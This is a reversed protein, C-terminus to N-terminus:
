MYMVAMMMMIVIVLVYLLIAADLAGFVIALVKWTTRKQTGKPSKLCLILSVIFMVLLAVPLAGILFTPISNM